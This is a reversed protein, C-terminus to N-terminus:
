RSKVPQPHAAPVARAEGKPEATSVAKGADKGDIGIRVHGEVAAGDAMTMRSAIIDGAIRGNPKIEVREAAEVNGEILGEVALEKAAVSAKCKAGQAILLKGKSRISGEVQGMVKAAADFTVEGKFRADPGLVTAFDTSSEAM